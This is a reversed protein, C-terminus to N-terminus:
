KKLNVIAMAALIVGSLVGYGFVKLQHPSKEKVETRFTKEQKVYMQRYLNSQKKYYECMVQLSDCTSNVVLLSNERKVSTNARGEKVRFEAGLPLKLLSDVPIRLTVSSM